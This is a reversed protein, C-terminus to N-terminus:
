KITVIVKNPLCVLTQGSDKVTGQRVCVKDPCSAETISVGGNKIVLHNTGGNYGTIIEDVDQNLPYTALEKGEVSILAKTVSQSARYRGFAFCLLAIFLLGAVLIIENRRKKEM